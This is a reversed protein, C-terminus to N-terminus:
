SNYSKLFIKKGIQDKGYLNFEVKLNVNSLIHLLYEDPQSMMNVPLRIWLHIFSNLATQFPNLSLIYFLIIRYIDIMFLGISFNWKFPSYAYNWTVRRAFIAIGSEYRYGQFRLRIFFTLSLTTNQSSFHKIEHIEENSKILFFHALRKRLFVM